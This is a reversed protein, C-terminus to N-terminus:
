YSRQPAPAPGSNPTYYTNTQQPATQPPTEEKKKKDAAGAIATGAIALDKGFGNITNCGVLTASVACASMLSVVKLITHM